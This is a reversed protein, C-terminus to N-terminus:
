LAIMTTTASIATISRLKKLLFNNLSDMDRTETKLIIDYDGYVTHADKVESFNQVSALAEKEKGAKTTALVFATVM